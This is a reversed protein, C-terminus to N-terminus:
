TSEYFAPQNEAFKKEKDNSIESHHVRFFEQLEAVLEAFSPRDAPQEKWCKMMVEQLEEPCNEPAKM